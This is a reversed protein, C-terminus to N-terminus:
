VTHCSFYCGQLTFITCDCSANVTRKRFLIILGMIYLNIKKNNNFLTSIPLYQDNRNHGGTIKPFQHKDHDLSSNM